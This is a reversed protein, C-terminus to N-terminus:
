TRAKQAAKWQPAPEHTAAAVARGVGGGGDGSLESCWCPACLKRRDHMTVVITRGALEGACRGGCM